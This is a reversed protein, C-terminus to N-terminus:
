TSQVELRDVLGVPRAVLAVQRPQYALGLALVQGLLNEHADM